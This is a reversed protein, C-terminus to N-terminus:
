YLMDDFAVRFNQSEFLDMGQLDFYFPMNNASDFTTDLNTNEVRVEPRELIDDIISSFVSTARIFLSSAAQEAGAMSEM